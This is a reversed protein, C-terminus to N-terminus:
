KLIDIDYVPSNDWDLMANILKFSQFNVLDDLFIDQQTIRKEFLLRARATGRLLPFKPTLWQKGDFFVINTFSTDTIRGNKIIIIEDAGANKRLDDLIKRDVLKISYDITNHAVLQFTNINKPEYADFQCFCDTANYLFRLKAVGNQHEDPVNIVESLKINTLEKYFKFYSAEFRNQHWSLNQLKGEIVKITEILPFM